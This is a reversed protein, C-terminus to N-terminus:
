TLSVAPQFKRRAGNARLTHKEIESLLHIKAAPFHSTTVVSDCIM